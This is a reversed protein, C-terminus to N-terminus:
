KKMQPHLHFKETLSVYYYTENINCRENASAENVLYVVQLHRPTNFEGNDDVDEPEEHFSKERISV